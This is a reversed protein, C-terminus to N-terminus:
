LKMGIVMDMVNTGTPGTRILDGSQELFGGADARQLCDAANMSKMTGRMITGGDVLAGAEAGAGDNGDTGAALLWVKDRDAIMEAAALALHQNRGGRGPNAPMEVSTEGGWLHVGPPGDVLIGALRRGAVAADGSLRETHVQLKYGLKRTELAAAALADDLSAIVHTEIGHFCSPDTVQPPSHQLLTQLWEPLPSASLPGYEEPLLLGSGIDAPNDGPVDSILVQLVNRGHLYAALRGGKICSLRKRLANMERIDLGSDLLWQNLRQLDNLGVGPPLVEVASSTGGSILFLLQGDEPAAAIFDLMAQGARLSAADPVPHGAEMVTVGAIGMMAPTVHGPKTVLLASRLRRGLAARAGQLMAEAAKGLALAYVEDQLRRVTLFREVCGTGHVAAVAGRFIKLVDDRPTSM